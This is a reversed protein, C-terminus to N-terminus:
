WFMNMSYIIAVYLVYKPIFSFGTWVVGKNDNQLM